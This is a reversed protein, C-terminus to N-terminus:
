AEQTACSALVTHSELRPKRPSKKAAQQADLKKHLIEQLPCAFSMLTLVFILLYRADCPTHRYVGHVNPFIRCQM